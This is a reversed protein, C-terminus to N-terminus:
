KVTVSARSTVGRDDGDDIKAVFYGTGRTFTPKPKFLNIGHHYVATSKLTGNYYCDRLMVQYIM